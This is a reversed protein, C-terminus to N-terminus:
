NTLKSERLMHLLTPALLLENCCFLVTCKQLKGHDLTNSIAAGLALLM